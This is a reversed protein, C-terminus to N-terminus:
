HKWKKANLLIAECFTLLTKLDLDNKMQNVAMCVLQVNGIIYGKSSDIRDVSVNTPIRGQNSIYTMDIGSIACKGNQKDWLYHLYKKDINVLLGNRAARGKLGLFRRDLLEYPTEITNNLLLQHKRQKNKCEKCRCDKNNRYWRTTDTDFEEPQKYKKCKYCLITGDDLVQEEISYKLRPHDKHYRKM